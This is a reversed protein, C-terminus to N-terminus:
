ETSQTYLSSAMGIPSKRKTILSENKLNKIRESVDEQEKALNNSEVILKLLSSAYESEPVHGQRLEQELNFRKNKVENLAKGISRLRIEMFALSNSSNM